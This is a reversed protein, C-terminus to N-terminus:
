GKKQKKILKKLFAIQKFFERVPQAPTGAIKSYAPVDSIVGSQAMIQTFDGIRTVKGLKNGIGAQGGIAFFNGIETKGAMGVQATIFCHKGIKVNHAIYVLDDIKTGDGIETDSIAGRDICTNAGIEVFSGIIVRGLQPIKLHGKQMDIVYGFGDQGIQAGRHIIVNKGMITHSVLNHGQIYTNDGIEVGKEIVTFPGIYCNKGIKASSHIQASPHIEEKHEFADPYFAQTVNLYAVQPTDSFLLLLDKPAYEAFKKSLICAGAKTNKFQELFYSNTSLENGSTLFTIDKKAATDLGSIDEFTQEQDVGDPISFEGVEALQKLSIPQSKTYFRKDAM